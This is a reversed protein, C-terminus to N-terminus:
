QGARDAVVVITTGQVRLDPPVKEFRYPEKYLLLLAMGFPYAFIAHEIPFANPSRRSPIV